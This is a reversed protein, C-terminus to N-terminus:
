NGELDKNIPVAALGADELCIRVAQIVEQTAAARESASGDGDTKVVFDGPSPVAEATPDQTDETM